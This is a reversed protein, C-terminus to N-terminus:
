KGNGSHSNFYADMKAEMRSLRHTLAIDRLKEQEKREEFLTDHLKVRGETRVAWVGLSGVSFVAGIAGFIITPEM